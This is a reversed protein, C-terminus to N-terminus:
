GMMNIFMSAWTHSMRVSSNEVTRVIYEPANRANSPVEGLLQLAGIYATTEDILEPSWFESLSGIPMSMSTFDIKDDVVIVESNRLDNDSNNSVLLTKLGPGEYDIKSELNVYKLSKGSAWALLGQYRHVDDRLDDEDYDEPWFDKPNVLIPDYIEEEERSRKGKSNTGKWKAGPLSNNEYFYKREDRPTGPLSLGYVTRKLNSYTITYPDPVSRNIFKPYYTTQNYEFKGIANIANAIVNFNIPCTKLIKEEEISLRPRYFSINEANVRLVSAEQSKMMKLETQALSVRYAEYVSCDPLKTLRQNLTVFMSQVTLGVVRTSVPLVKAQKVVNFGSADIAKAELNFGFFLTKDLEKKLEKSEEAGIMLRHRESRAKDRGRKSPPKGRKQVFSPGSPEETEEFSKFSYSPSYGRGTGRFSKNGRQYNM